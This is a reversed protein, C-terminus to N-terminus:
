VEPIGGALVTDMARRCEAETLPQVRGGASQMSEVVQEPTLGCNLGCRAVACLRMNRRGRARPSGLWKLEEAFCARANARRLAEVHTMTATTSPQHVTENKM